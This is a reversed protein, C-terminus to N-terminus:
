PRRYRHTSHWHLKHWTAQKLCYRVRADANTPLLSRIRADANTAQHRKKRDKNNQVLTQMALHEIDLEPQRKMSASMKKLLDHKKSTIRRREKLEAKQEKSAIAEYRKNYAKKSQKARATKEEQELALQEALKAEFDKIHEAMTDKSSATTHEEKTKKAPPQGDRKTPM